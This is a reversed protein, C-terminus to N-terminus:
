GHGREDSYLRDGRWGAGVGLAGAPEPAPGQHSAVGAVVFCFVVCLCRRRQRADQWQRWGRKCPESRFPWFDSWRRSCLCRGRRGGQWHGIICLAGDRYSSRVLLSSAVSPTRWRRALPERKTREICVLPERFRFSFLREFIRRGGEGQVPIGPPSENLAPACGGERSTICGGGRSTLASISADGKEDGKPSIGPSTAWGPRRALLM